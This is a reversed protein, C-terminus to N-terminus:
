ARQRARQLEPRPTLYFRYVAYDVYTYVLFLGCLISAILSWGLRDRKILWLNVLLGVFSVLVVLALCRWITPVLLAAGRPGTIALRGMWIVFAGIHLLSAKTTLRM